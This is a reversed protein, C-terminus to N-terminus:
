THKSWKRPNAGLYVLSFRVFLVKVKISVGWTRFSEFSLRRKSTFWIAVEVHGEYNQRVALWSEEHRNPFTGYLVHFIHLSCCGVNLVSPLEDQERSDDLLRLVEFDINPRDMFLQLLHKKPLEQISNELHEYLSIANNWSLFQSDFFKIMILKGSKNDWFRVYVDM